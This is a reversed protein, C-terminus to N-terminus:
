VAPGDAVQPLRNTKGKLRDWTRETASTQVKGVLLQGGNPFQSGKKSPEPLPQELHRGLCTILFLEM